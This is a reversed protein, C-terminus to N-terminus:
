TRAFREIGFAIIAFSMITELVLAVKNPEEIIVCGQM